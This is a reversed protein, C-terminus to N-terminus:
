DAGELFGFGLAHVQLRNNCLWVCDDWGGGWFWFLDKMVEGVVFSRWRWARLSTYVSAM